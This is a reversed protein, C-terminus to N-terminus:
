GPMARSEREIAIVACRVVAIVHEGALGSVVLIYAPMYTNGPKMLAWAWM